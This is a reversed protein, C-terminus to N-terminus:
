LGPIGVRWGKALVECSNVADPEPIRGGELYQQVNHRPERLYCGTCGGSKYLITGAVNATDVVIQRNGAMCQLPAVNGVRKARNKVFRIYRERRAARKKRMREYAALSRKTNAQLLPHPTPPPL